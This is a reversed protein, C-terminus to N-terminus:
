GRLKLDSHVLRSMAIVFMRIEGLLSTSYANRNDRMDKQKVRRVVYTHAIKQRADEVNSCETFQAAVAHSVM